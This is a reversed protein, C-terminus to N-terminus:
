ALARDILRKILAFNDQSLTARDRTLALDSAHALMNGVQRYFDGILRCRQFDVESVIEAGHTRILTDLAEYEQKWHLAHAVREDPTRIAADDQILPM